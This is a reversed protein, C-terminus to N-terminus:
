RGTLRHDRRELERLLVDSEERPHFHIRNRLSDVKRRSAKEKGVVLNLDRNRNVRSRKSTSRRLSGGSIWGSSLMRFLIIRQKRGRKEFIRFLSFLSLFLSVDQQVRRGPNYRPNLTTEDIKSCLIEEVKDVPQRKREHRGSRSEM